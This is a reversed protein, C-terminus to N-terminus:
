FQQPFHLNFDHRLKARVLRCIILLTKVRVLFQIHKMLGFHRAYMRLYEMMKSHHMYNPYHDPIPHDSFATM